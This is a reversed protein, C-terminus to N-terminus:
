QNNKMLREVKLLNDNTDYVNILYVGNALGSLDIQTANLKEMVLKGELGTVKVNVAKACEIYVITTAPNPFIKVDLNNTVTKGVSLVDVVVSDSM